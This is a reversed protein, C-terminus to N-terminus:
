SVYFYITYCTCSKAEWYGVGLFYDYKTVATYGKRGCCTHTHKHIIGFIMYFFVHQLPAQTVRSTQGLSFFFGVISGFLTRVFRHKEKNIQCCGIGIYEMM